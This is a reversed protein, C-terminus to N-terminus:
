KERFRGSIVHRDVRNPDNRALRAAPAWVARTNRQKNRQAMLAHVANIDDQATNPDAQFLQHAQDAEYMSRGFTMWVRMLARSVTGTCPAFAQM